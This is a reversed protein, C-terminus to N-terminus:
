SNNLDESVAESEMAVVLGREARALTQAPMLLVDVCRTEGCGVAGFHWGLDVYVRERPCCCVAVRRSRGLHLLCIHPTLQHAAAEHWGQGCMGPIM